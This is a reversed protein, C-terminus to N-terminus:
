RGSKTIIMELNLEAFRKWLDLNELKVDINPDIRKTTHAFTYPTRSTDLCYVHIIYRCSFDEKENVQSRLYIMM